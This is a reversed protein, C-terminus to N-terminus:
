FATGILPFVSGIAAPGVEISIQLAMAIMFYKIAEAEIKKDKENLLSIEEKKTIGYKNFVEKHVPSEM